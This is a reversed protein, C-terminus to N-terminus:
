AILIETAREIAERLQALDTGHLMLSFTFDGSSVIDVSVANVIQRVKIREINHVYAATINRNEKTTILSVSHTGNLYSANVSEMSGDTWKTETIDVKPTTVKLTETSTM